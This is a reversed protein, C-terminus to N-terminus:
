VEFIINSDLLLCVPFLKIEVLAFGRVIGPDAASMTYSGGNITGSSVM